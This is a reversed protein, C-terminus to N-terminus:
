WNGASLRVDEMEPDYINFEIRKFAATKFRVTGFNQSYGVLGGEEVAELRFVVSSGDAFWARVDGNERKCREADVPNLAVGRLAEIPLKVERFPTKVEIVGEHVAVVEGVISDGNRLDMRQGSPKAPPAPNADDEGEDQIGLNRFGPQFPQEQFVESEGDWAAVEIRSVEMPSQNLSIFHVSRGMELKEVDPDVWTQDIQKGDVLVCIKGSKRSARIEIRAKENEQLATANQLNAIFKQTKCSRASIVRQQFILEYGTSPRDTNPDNSFVVVKLSIASRWAVDFSLSCEEPLNVDRAIGGAATSRFAAGQYSWAGPELTQQWGELGTPGQYQLAPRESIRVEAIMPRNFSMRGAFWTDLAVASDTVGALQGRLVDGNTLSITAEHSGAREPPQAPLTMDLVKDLRFAAPKGLVASKWVLQETSLSELAGGLQDGNAFRVMAEAEAGAVSATLGSM